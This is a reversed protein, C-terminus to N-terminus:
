YALEAGWPRYPKVGQALMSATSPGYHLSNPSLMPLPHPGGPTGHLFQSAHHVPPLSALLSSSHQHGGLFQHSQISPAGGSSGSVGHSSTMLRNGHADIVHGIRNNHDLYAAPSNSENLLQHQHHSMMGSNIASSPQGTYQHHSSSVPHSSWSSSSQSQHNISASKAGSERQANYCQLHSLLRVRLPDQKELGEVSVLYRAVEAACERFGVLRCDLALAATDINYGSGAGLAAAIRM